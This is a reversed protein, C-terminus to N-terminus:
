GKPMRCWVCRSGHVCDPQGKWVTRAITALARKAATPKYLVRGLERFDSRSARALFWRYALHGGTEYLFRNALGTEFRQGFHEEWAPGFGRGSLVCQAALVGSQLALRIGFGFLHDAFGGAEGVYLPFTSTLLPDPLFLDLSGSLTPHEIRPVGARGRFFSVTRHFAELARDQHGVVAAGVVTYGEAVLLYGFGGPCIRNDFVAHFGDPLGTRGFWERAVGQAVAGGTAVIDVEEPRARTRFRFQVGAEEAARKLAGDLATPGPGRQLLYGFPESSRGSVCKGSPGYLQASRQPWLSVPVSGLLSCLETRADEMDPYNTLLQLNGRFHGGVEGRLERVEVSLGARALTIASALGAPGAGAIVVHRHKDVSEGYSVISLCM